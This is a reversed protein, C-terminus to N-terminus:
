VECLVEYLKNGLQKNERILRKLIISNILSVMLKRNEDEIEFIMFQTLLENNVERENRCNKLSDLIQPLREYNAEPLGKDCYYNEVGRVNFLGVLQQHIMSTGFTYGLKYNEFSLYIEKTFYKYYDGYEEMMEKYEEYSVSSIFRLLYKEQILEALTYMYGKICDSELFDLTYNADKFENGENAIIDVIKGLNEEVIDKDFDEMMETFFRNGTFGYKLIEYPARQHRLVIDALVVKIVEIGNPYTTITIHRDEGNVISLLYPSVINGISIGDNSIRRQIGHYCAMFNENMGLPLKNISSYEKFKLLDLIDDTIIM